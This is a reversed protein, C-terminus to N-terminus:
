KEEEQKKLQKCIEDAMFKALKNCWEPLENEEQEM